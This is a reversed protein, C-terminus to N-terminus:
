RLAPRFRGFHFAITGIMQQPRGFAELPAFKWKLAAGKAAAQMLPHGSVARACRVSGKEDVLVEIVVTGTARAAKAVAPYVQTVRTTARNFLESSALYVPENADSRTDAEVCPQGSEGRWTGPIEPLEGDPGNWVLFSRKPETLDGSSLEVKLEYSRCEYPDPAPSDSSFKLVLLGDEEDLYHNARGPISYVDDVFILASDDEETLFDGLTLQKILTGDTRYIVVTQPGYGFTVVYQGSNSVLASEPLRGDVLPFALQPYFSGNQGIYFVGICRRNENAEAAEADARNEAEDESPSCMVGERGGAILDVAYLKNESTFRKREPASAADVEALAAMVVVVFLAGIFKKVLCRSM